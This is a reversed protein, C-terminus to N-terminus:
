DDDKQAVYVSVEDALGTTSMLAEEVGSLDEFLSELPGMDRQIRDIFAGTKAMLAEPSGNLAVAWLELELERLLVHMVRSAEVLEEFEELRVKVRDQGGIRRLRLDELLVHYRQLSHKM